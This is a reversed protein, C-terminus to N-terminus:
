GGSPVAVEAGPLGGARRGLLLPVRAAMITSSLITITVIITITSSITM